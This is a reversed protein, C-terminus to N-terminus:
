SLSQNRSISRLYGNIRETVDKLYDIERIRFRLSELSIKTGKVGSSQGNEEKRKKGLEIIHDVVGDYTEKITQKINEPLTEFLGNDGALSKDLLRFNDSLGKDEFSKIQEALHIIMDRKKDEYEASERVQDRTGEDKMLEAARMTSKGHATDSAVTTQGTKQEKKHLSVQKERIHETEDVYGQSRAEKQADDNTKAESLSGEAEKFYEEM